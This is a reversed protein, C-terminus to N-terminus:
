GATKKALEAELMAVRAELAALQVCTRELLACQVDFEERTVLDLRAFASAALARVNKEIDKVPSNAAAEAFKGALQDLLQPPNM